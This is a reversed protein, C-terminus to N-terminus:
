KIGGKRNSQCIAQDSLKLKEVIEANDLIMFIEHLASVADLKSDPVLYSQLVAICKKVIGTMYINSETSEPASAILRANAEAEKMEREDIVPNSILVYPCRAIKYKGGLVSGIVNFAPKSESHKVQWPGPTHLTKM